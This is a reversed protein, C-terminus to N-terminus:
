AVRFSTAQAQHGVVPANMYVVQRQFSQRAPLGHQVVPAAQATAQFSQRTPLGPRPAAQVRQMYQVPQAVTKAQAVAQVAAPAVPAAQTTQPPPRAAPAPARAKPSLDAIKIQAVQAVPARSPAVTKEASTDGQFAFGSMRGVPTIGDSSNARGALVVHDKSSGSLQGFTSARAALRAPSAVVSTPTAAGAPSRRMSSTAFDGPGFSGSGYESQQAAWNAANLATPPWMSRNPLGERMNSWMASADAGGAFALIPGGCMMDETKRIHMREGMSMQMRESPDCCTQLEGISAWGGHPEEGRCGALDTAAMVWKVPQQVATQTAEVAAQGANTAWEKLPNAMRDVLPMTSQEAFKLLEAPDINMSFSIAIHGALDGQRYVRDGGSVHTLPLIMPDSEWVFADDSAADPVQKVCAPLLRQRFDITVMGVDTPRSMSVQLTGLRVDKQTRVWVQLGPGLIDAKRVSFTLTDGFCWPTEQGVDSFSGWNSEPKFDGFETQKRVHGLMVEVQPRERTLLGPDSLGQVNASLVKISLKFTQGDEVARSFKPIPIEALRNQVWMGGGIAAVANIM